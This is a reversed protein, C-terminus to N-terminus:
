SKPLSNRVDQSFAVKIVGAPNDESAILLAKNRLQAQTVVDSVDAKTGNQTNSNLLAQTLNELTENRATNDQKSEAGMGINRSNVSDSHTSNCGVNYLSTLAFVLLTCTTQTRVKFLNNM